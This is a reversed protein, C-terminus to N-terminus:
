RSCVTDENNVGNLRGTKATQYIHGALFPMLFSKVDLHIRNFVSLGNVSLLWMVILCIGLMSWKTSNRHKLSVYIALIYPIFYVSASIVGYHFSMYFFENDIFSYDGYLSSKYTATMGKGLIWEYPKVQELMERYQFSRSDNLGKDFLSSVFEGLYNFAFFLCVTAIFTIFILAKVISTVNHTRRWAIAFCVVFIFIVAQVVWSRSRIIVAGAFLLLMLPYLYSTKREETFCVYVYFAACWFLHSYYSMLSSNQYIGWGYNAYSVVFEYCFLVAYFITLWPVVGKVTGWFKDKKGLFFGIILFYIIPLNGSYIANSAGIKMIAEVSYVVTVAAVILIYLWSQESHTVMMLSVGLIVFFTAYRILEMYRNSYAFKSLLIQDGSANTEAVWPAKIYSLVQLFFLIFIAVKLIQDATIVNKQIFKLM